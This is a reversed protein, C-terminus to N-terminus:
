AGGRLRRWLSGLWTRVTGPAAADGCGEFAEPTAATSPALEDVQDAVPPASSTLSAPPPASLEADRLSEDRSRLSCSRAGGDPTTWLDVPAVVTPTASTTLNESSTNLLLPSTATCNAERALQERLQGCRVGLKLARANCGLVYLNRVTSRAYADPAESRLCRPPLKRGKRGQARALAVRGAATLSVYPAGLATLQTPVSRRVRQLYGGNRLAALAIWVNRVCWGDRGDRRFIRVIDVAGLEVGAFGQKVYHAVLGLVAAARPALEAVPAAPPRGDVLCDSTVLEHPACRTFLEDAAARRADRTRNERADIEDARTNLRELSAQM